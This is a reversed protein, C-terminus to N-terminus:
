VLFVVTVEVAQIVAAFQVPPVALLIGPTSPLGDVLVSPLAPSMACNPVVAEVLAMPIFKLLVDPLAFPVRVSPAITIVDAAFTWDKPFLSLEVKPALRTNPPAVTFETDLVIKRLWDLLRVVISPKAPPLPALGIPNTSPEVSLMMVTSPEPLM